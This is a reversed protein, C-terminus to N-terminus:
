RAAPRPRARRELIARYEAFSGRRAPSFQTRLFLFEEEFAATTEELSPRHPPGFPQGSERGVWALVYRAGARAVRALELSYARRLTTPITHYCGVDVLADFRARPFPLRLADAPRFDVSLGQRAARAKAAAIAAPALDIGTTRLGSRALFLANTGAGCGVDLARMGRRLWREEVAERVWPYARPSFWPLRHYPTSAYTRQWAVQQSRPLGVPVPKSRPMRAGNLFLPPLEPLLRRRDLLLCLMSLLRHVYLLLM